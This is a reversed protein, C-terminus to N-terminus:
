GDQAEKEKNYEQTLRYHESRADDYEAHTIPSPCKQLPREISVVVGSKQQEECSHHPFNLWCMRRHTPWFMDDARCETCSKRKHLAGTWHSVIYESFEGGPQKPEAM